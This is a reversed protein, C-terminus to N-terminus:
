YELLVSGYSLGAGFGSLLVRGGPAVAGNDLAHRLAVPISASALNGIEGLNTVVRERPLPVLRALSDLTLQSAQHFVYADIDEPTLANTALFDRLHGPVVSNVFAWVGPGDLHINEASRVNGNADVTEAKTEDGRPRRWGGAPIYAGQALPRAHSCLEAAVVRGGTGADATSLHTVAAGDGFLVRTTRDGPNIHKSYTEATVLLIETALGARAISDAIAVGYVYGSCALTFDFALVRDDLGLHSHLLNANGPMLYDPSQTCFLIADISALDLGTEAVLAECAQVSLDFATEHPAAIRRARVGSRQAVTAMEWGPNESELDANTVAQEPLACGIARIITM